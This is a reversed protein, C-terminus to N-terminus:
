IRRHSRADLWSGVGLVVYVGGVSASVWAYGNSVPVLLFCAVAAGFFFIARRDM